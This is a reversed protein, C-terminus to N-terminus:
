GLCSLLRADTSKEKTFGRNSRTARDFGFRGERHVRDRAEVSLELYGETPDVRDEFLVRRITTLDSWAFSGVHKIADDLGKFESM